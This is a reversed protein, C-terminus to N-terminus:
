PQLWIVTHRPMAVKTDATEKSDHPIPIFNTIPLTKRVFHRIRQITSVMMDRRRESNIWSVYVGVRRRRAEELCRFVYLDVKMVEYHLPPTLSTQQRFHTNTM